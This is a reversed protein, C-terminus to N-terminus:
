LLGVVCRWWQWCWEGMCWGGELGVSVEPVCGFSRELDVFACYLGREWSAEGVRSHVSCGGWSGLSYVMWGWGSGSKTQMCQGVVRVVQELAWDISVVWVEVFGRWM